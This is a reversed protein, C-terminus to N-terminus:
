GSKLQMSQAYYSTYRALLEEAERLFLQKHEDTM